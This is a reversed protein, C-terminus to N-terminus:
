SAGKGEMIAEFDVQAHADLVGPQSTLKVSKVGKPLKVGGENFYANVEPETLDVPKSEPHPLAANQKLYAIKAQMSRFEQSHKEQSSQAERNDALLLSSLLLLFLFPIRDRWLRM